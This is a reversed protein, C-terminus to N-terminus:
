GDYVRWAVQNSTAGAVGVKPATEILCGDSHCIFVRVIAMMARTM